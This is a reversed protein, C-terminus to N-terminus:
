LFLKLFDNLFLHGQKTLQLQQGQHSIWGHKIAEELQPMITALDIGTVQEMAPISIPALLRGHNMFFEFPIQESPVRHKSVEESRIYTTPHKKKQSREIRLKGDEYFTLKGCAGAGCGLYDGFRWYNLNHQCQHDPKAFASIEYRHYQAEALIAYAEWEWAVIADDNLQQPRQSYFVTNPEITLQYYSLHPSHYSLAKELDARAASPTQDPLAYMLDINYSPFWRAAAAIAEDIEDVTHVRGLRQLQDADFTQIGLSVRNIGCDRYAAFKSFESSRPNAEITVEMNDACSFSTHICHMIAAISSASFLSPTGGGIFVSQLVRGQVRTADTHIDALLRKLYASEDSHADREHSNFDCYFCKKECWPLHIYLSLPPLTSM